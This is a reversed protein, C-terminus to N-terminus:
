KLEREIKTIIDLAERYIKDMNESKDGPAFRAYETNNLTNIFQTTITQDVNKKNLIDKVNDMSLEAKPINLKDSLYGWLAQSIEVYFENERGQKLFGNAIKLRKGSVKTAKKTKMRVIDSRRKVTQRWLIIVLISIFLPIILLVFYWDSKFFFNGTTKLQYPPLKIHRIDQGIYQIDEKGVGSYSIGTTQGDGKNVKIKYEPSQLIEYKNKNTDFFSITVPQITFDGPNRPIILYEFTRTGSVGNTNLRINNKIDPDYVEFDPPFNVSPPDILEINGKGQLTFKLSISENANVETESIEANFNFNGVAGSFNAPKNRTPLPKVDIKLSNSLLQKEVNKYRNNFFPDNFFSDFFPDSSKRQSGSRIQAVCEIEGPDIIIEGSQQPFLAFKRVEAVVYEKGNIVERSQPYEKLNQFLDKSWFGSFSSIKSADINSIPINTYIKYTIITQEGLYPTSNSIHARLFLEGATEETSQQGTNSKAVKVQLTNSNYTKGDVSITAAPITFTGEKSARLIYTFVYEVKRSVQGNIIQVSSNTSTNPGSLVQFDTINPGRFGKGEANIKYSLQFKEGVRVVGKASATFNIDQAFVSGTLTFLLIFVVPFIARNVAISFDINPNRLNM